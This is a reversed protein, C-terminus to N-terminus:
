KFTAQGTIDERKVTSRCSEVCEMADGREVWKSTAPVHPINGLSHWPATCLEPETPVHLHPNFTVSLNLFCNALLLPHHHRPVSNHPWKPTSLPVIGWGRVGPGQQLCQVTCFYAGTHKSALKPKLSSFFLPNESWFQLAKGVPEIQLQKSISTLQGALLEPVLQSQLLNGKQGPPFSEAENKM